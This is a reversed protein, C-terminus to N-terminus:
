TPKFDGNDLARLCMGADGAHPFWNSAAIREIMRRAEVPALALTYKAAMLRVEINPHDFLSLLAKRQDGPRGKLEAQVADMEYCLRDRKALDDVKEAEDEEVGILAFLDVLQSVSLRSLKIQKM